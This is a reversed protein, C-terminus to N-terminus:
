RRDMYGGSSLSTWFGNQQKTMFLFTLYLYRAVCFVTSYPMNLGDIWPDTPNVLNAGELITYDKNFKITFRENIFGSERHTREKFTALESETFFTLVVTHNFAIFGNIYYFFYNEDCEVGKIM